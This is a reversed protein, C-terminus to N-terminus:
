VAFPVAASSTGSAFTNTAAVPPQFLAKIMAETKFRIAANIASTTSLGIRLLIILSVYELGTVVILRAAYIV